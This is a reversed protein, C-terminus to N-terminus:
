IHKARVHFISNITLHIAIQNDSFLISSNKEKELIQLFFKLWIMKEDAELVIMYEVETNFLAVSKHLRSIWSIVVGLM